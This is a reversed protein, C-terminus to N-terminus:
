KAALTLVLGNGHVRVPVEEAAEAAVDVVFRATDGHTGLRVRSALPSQLELDKAGAAHRVGPIDVVLRRPNALWFSKYTDVPRDVALEVEFTQAPGALAPAPEPAVPLVVEARAPEVPPAPPAEVPTVKPAVEVPAEGLMLSPVFSLILSIVVGAALGLAGSMYPSMRERKESVTVASEPVLPLTWEAARGESREKVLADIREGEAVGLETFCLGYASDEGGAQRRWVVEAALTLHQEGLAPRFCCEVIEREHLAVPLVCALGRECINVIVGDVPQDTGCVGVAVPVAFRVREAVLAPEDNGPSPAVDLPLPSMAAWPPETAVDFSLNADRDKAFFDEQQMM